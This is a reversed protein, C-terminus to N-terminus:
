DVDESIMANVVRVRTRMAKKRGTYPDSGMTSRPYEM